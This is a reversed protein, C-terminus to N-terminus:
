KLAVVRNRGSEKAKYLSEDAKKMMQDLDMKQSNLQSIGISATFGIHKDNVRISAEMLKIRLREATIQAMEQDTEPMAVAFEEGGIRGILDTSRLVDGAIKATAQLVKDGADHGYSDNIKKFHDLDFMMVSFQREHRIALMLQKQAQEMFYRRNFLGTLSDITAFETLRSEFEKRATIDRVSGVAYWKGQFYFPAVSREVPFIQGNKKTANMELISKMVPGDGTKAFQELGETAREIDEQTTILKHMNKGIAEAESYGFMKEAAPNWLIVMGDSDIVILADHSARSMTKFRYESEKLRFRGRMQVIAMLCVPVMICLVFLHIIWEDLFSEQWTHKSKAAIMWYGTPLAIPLIISENNKNFLKPDGWFVDGEAGKADRGRIAIDLSRFDSSSFVKKMLEDFDIVTSVLGWFANTDNTFVPIRAILGKGGQVLNVPGAVIMRGTEKADLAGPWQEPVKRYNLGIVAENGQRPYVYKIVFDPAIAVNKLITSRSLLTQGLAEFKQLSIDSEISLYAAMGYILFLNTNLNAEVRERLNALKSTVELKQNVQYQHALLYDIGIDLLIALIVFLVVTVGIQKGYRLKSAKKESIKM